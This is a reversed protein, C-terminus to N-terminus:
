RASALWAFLSRMHRAVPEIEGEELPEGNEVKLFELSGDALIEIELERRGARWELQIGGGAVPFVRPVPLDEFGLRPIGLLLGTSASVAKETPPPSGYGDWDARLTAVRLVEKVAEAGWKTFIRVSPSWYSLETQASPRKGYQHALTIPSEMVDSM